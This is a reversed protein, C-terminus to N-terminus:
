LAIKLTGMFGVCPDYFWHPIRRQFSQIVRKLLWENGDDLYSYEVLCCVPEVLQIASIDGQWVPGQQCYENIGAIPVFPTTYSKKEMKKIPAKDKELGLTLKTTQKKKLSRQPSQRHYNVYNWIPTHQLPFFCRSGNCLFSRPFIFLNCYHKCSLCIWRLLAKQTLLLTNIESLHELYATETHPLQNIGHNNAVLPGAAECAVGKAAMGLNPNSKGQSLLKHECEWGGTNGWYLMRHKRSKKGEGGWGQSNARM